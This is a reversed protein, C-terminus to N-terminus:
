SDSDDGSYIIISPFKIFLEVTSEAKMKLDPLLIVGSVNYNGQKRLTIDHRIM